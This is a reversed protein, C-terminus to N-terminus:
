RRQLDPRSFKGIQRPLLNTLLNIAAVLVAVAFARSFPSIIPHLAPNLRARPGPMGAYVSVLLTIGVLAGLNKLM